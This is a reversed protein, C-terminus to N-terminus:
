AWIMYLGKVYNKPVVSLVVVSTIVVFVDHRVSLVVVSIIMVSVNPGVLMLVLSCNAVLVDLRDTFVFVSQIVVDSVEIGVSLVVEFAKNVSVVVINWVDVPVGIEIFLAVVAEGVNAISHTKRARRYGM